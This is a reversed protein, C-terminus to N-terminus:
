NYILGLKGYDALVKAGEDRLVRRTVIIGAERLKKYSEEFVPGEDFGISEADDKTAACIM